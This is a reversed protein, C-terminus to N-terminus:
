QRLARGTQAAESGVAEGRRDAELDDHPEVLVDTGGEAPDPPQEAVRETGAAFASIRVRRSSESASWHM